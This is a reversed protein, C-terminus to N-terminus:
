LLLKVDSRKEVFRKAAQSSVKRCLSLNLQLLHPCRNAITNLSSDNFALCWSLNLYQLKLNTPKYENSSQSQVLSIGSVEPCGSVNLDTIFSCSDVLSSVGATTISHCSSLNVFVIRRCKAALAKLGVDSVRMCSSIDLIQLIAGSYEAIRKLGTDTIHRCRSLTLESLQKCNQLALMGTDGLKRCRAVNICKLNRCSSLLLTFNQDDVAGCGSINLRMLNGCRSAIEAFGIPTIVKQKQTDDFYVVNTCSSTLYKVMIPSSADNTLEPRVSSRDVITQSHRKRM